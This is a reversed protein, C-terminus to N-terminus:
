GNLQMSIFGVLREMAGFVFLGDATPAQYGATLEWLLSQLQERTSAVPTIGSATNPLWMAETARPLIALTPRELLSAETLLMSTMGVVLDAAWVLELPDGGESFADVEEQYASFEQIKNKPHLRVVIYPREPLGRTADLLEELVIATRFESVGRGHLTFDDAHLSATPDFRDHSEAVFVWVPRDERWEPLLRRRILERSKTAMEAGRVRVRDFHPHGCILVCDGPVGLERYVSATAEDPVALWNPVHALPDDSTGRFRRDANVLMDVVALSPLGRRAAEDILELGASYVNESTGTLLLRPQLSQLVEGSGLRRQYEQFKVGRASLYARADGDALLCSSLGDESLRQGLLVVYNAAGPDEVYICVDVM